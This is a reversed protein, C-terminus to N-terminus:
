KVVKEKVYLFFKQRVDSRKRRSLPLINGSKLIVNNQEISALFALNVFCSRHIDAFDYKCFQKKIKEFKYNTLKYKDSVTHLIIEGGLSEIYTIEELYVCGDINCNNQKYKFSFSVNEKQQENIIEIIRKVENELFIDIKNKPISSEIDYQFTSFVEEYYDSIFVLKFKNKSIKRLKRATDKGNIGPMDIDLFIIDFSTNEVAKLIDEGSRYLYIKYENEYFDFIDALQAKFRKLFIIDDDCIAANM